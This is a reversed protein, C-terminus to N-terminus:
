ECVVIVLDVYVCDVLVVVECNIEVLEIFDCNKLVDDWFMFCVKFFVFCELLLDIVQVLLRGFVFVECVCDVVVMQVEFIYCIM